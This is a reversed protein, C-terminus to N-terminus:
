NQRIRIWKKVKAKNDAEHTSFTTEDIQMLVEDRHTGKFDSVIKFANEPRGRLSDFIVHDGNVVEWTIDIDLRGSGVLFKTATNFEIVMLGTGDEDLHLQFEGYSDPRAWKGLLKKRYVEQKALLNAVRQREAEAEARLQDDTKLKDEAAKLLTKAQELNATAQALLAAKGAQKASEWETQASSMAAQADQLAQKDHQVQEQAAKEKALAQAEDPKDYEVIPKSEAESKLYQFAAASGVGITLLVILGAKLGWRRRTRPRTEHTDSIESPNPSSAM